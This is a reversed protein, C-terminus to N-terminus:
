AAARVLGALRTFPELTYVKCILCMVCADFASCAVACNSAQDNVSEGVGYELAYGLPGARM